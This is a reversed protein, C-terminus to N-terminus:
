GGIAPPRTAALGDPKAKPIPAFVSEPPEAPGSIVKAAGPAGTAATAAPTAALREPRPEPVPPVGRLRLVARLTGLRGIRTAHLRGDIIRYSVKEGDYALRLVGDEGIRGTRRFASAPQGWPEYPAHMDVLEVRGDPYIKSVLLDHCWVGNWAGSGWFGSFRRFKEPVEKGPKEVKVETFLDVTYCDAGDGSAAVPIPAPPADTDASEQALSACGALVIAAAVLLRNRM